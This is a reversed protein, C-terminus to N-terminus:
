AGTIDIGKDLYEVQIMGRTDWFVLMMITETTRLVKVNHPPSSGHYRWDMSERKSESDSH